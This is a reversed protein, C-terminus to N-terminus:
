GGDHGGHCPLDHARGAIHCGLLDVTRLDIVAGVQEREAAHEVLHGGALLRERPLVDVFREAADDRILRRRQLAADAVHRRLQM